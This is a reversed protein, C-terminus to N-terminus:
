QYLIASIDEVRIMTISWNKENTFTLFEVKGEYIAKQLTEFSEKPYKTTNLEKWNKLTIILDM